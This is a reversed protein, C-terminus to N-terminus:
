SLGHGGKALGVCVWGMALVTAARGMALAALASEHGVWGM